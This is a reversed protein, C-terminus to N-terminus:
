CVFRPGPPPMGFINRERFLRENHESMDHSPMRHQAPAHFLRMGETSFPRFSLATVSKPGNPDDRITPRITPHVRTEIWAPGRKFAPDRTHGGRQELNSPQSRSSVMARSISGERSADEKPHTAAFRTSFNVRARSDHYDKAAQVMDVGEKLWPWPPAGRVM